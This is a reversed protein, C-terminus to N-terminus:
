RKHGKKHNHVEHVFHGPYNRATHLFGLFAILLFIRQLFWPFAWPQPYFALLAVLIGHLLIAVLGSAAYVKLVGKKMIMMFVFVPLLVIDSTLALVITTAILDFNFLIGALPVLFFLASNFRLIGSGKIVHPALLLFIVSFLFIKISGGLFAAEGLVLQFQFGFLFILGILFFYVAPMKHEKQWSRAILFCALAIIIDAFANIVAVIEPM